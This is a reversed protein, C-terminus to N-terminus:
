LSTKMDNSRYFHFIFLVFVISFPVRNTKLSHILNAFSISALKFHVTRNFISVSASTVSNDLVKTSVNLSDKDRGSM